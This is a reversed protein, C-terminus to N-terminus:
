RKPPTCYKGPFAQPAVYVPEKHFNVGMNQLQERTNYYIEFVERPTSERKFDVSVVNSQKSEGWGTGLDNSMSRVHFSSTNQAQMNFASDCTVNNCAATGNFFDNSGSTSTFTLFGNNYYNPTNESFIACGIVGLNNGKKMKKRYSDKPSSFYFSAVEKDSIRWGEVTIASYAPVIYGSSDYSGDEGDMVSLGDITPIFLKREYSNNKLRLSFVTDKRGEIYVKRDHAYEKLPKGNVLVEIEYQSKIM